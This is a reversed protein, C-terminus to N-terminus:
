TSRILPSPMWTTAPLQTPPDLTTYKAAESRAGDYTNSRRPDAKEAIPKDPCEDRYDPVRDTDADPCGFAKKVGAEDVCEDDPTDVWTALPWQCGAVHAGTVAGRRGLRVPTELEGALRALVNSRVEDLQDLELPPLDADGTGALAAVVPDAGAVVALARGIM